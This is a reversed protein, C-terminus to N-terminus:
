LSELQHNLDDKESTMLSWNIDSRDLYSNILAKAELKQGNGVYAKALQQVVWVENRDYSGALAQKGVRVADGFRKNENLIKLQRRQLEPNKPDRALLKEVQVEAAPWDKAGVLALLYRLSPGTRTIPIKMSKGIEEVKKNAADVEAEPLKGDEALDARHFAVLLKELGAFEGIFDGVMAKSLNKENALIADGVKLGERALQMREEGEPLSAALYTRWVISRSSQNEKQLAERVVKQMETKNKENTKDEDYKKVAAQVRADALEVPEPTVKSLHETAQAFAGANYERMGLMQLAATDGADAKAKLEEFTLPAKTSQDLFQTVITLPQYDVIRSIEKLDGNLVLLTPIAYISYVKRLPLNEFRDVDLKVKLFNKSANKFEKTDFVEQELRICGPCWRASFDVLLLKKEKAAITKADDISTEYFGHHNLKREQKSSDGHAQQDSAQGKLNIRRPECFTNENNCIYITAEAFKYNETPLKFSILQKELKEPLIKQEDVRLVNPAKENFHYGSQLTAVFDSKQIQTGLAKTVGANQATALSPVLVSMFLSWFIIKM